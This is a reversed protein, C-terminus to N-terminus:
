FRRLSISRAYLPGSCHRAVWSVAGAFQLRSYVRSNKGIKVLGVRFCILKLLQQMEMTRVDVLNYLSLSWVM